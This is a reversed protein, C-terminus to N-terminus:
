PEQGTLTLTITTTYTGVALAAPLNSYYIANQQSFTGTGNPQVLPTLGATAWLLNTPSNVLNPSGAFVGVGNTISGASACYGASTVCLGSWNTNNTNHIQAGPINPSFESANASVYWGAGTGRMDIVQLNYFTSATWNAPGTLSFQTSAWNGSNTIEVSFQENALIQLDFEESDTSSPPVEAIASGAMVLTLTLAAVFAFLKRVRM